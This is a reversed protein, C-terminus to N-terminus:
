HKDLLAIIEDQPADKTSKLAKVEKELQRLDKKSRGLEKRHKYERLYEWFFGVLLGIFVGILIVLFLPLSISQSLGLADALGRPLLNLEVFARNALALVILAISIILLFCLRIFRM